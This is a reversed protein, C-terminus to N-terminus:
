SSSPVAQTGPVMGPPNQAPLKLSGTRRVLKHIHAVLVTSPAPKTLYDDAGLDLARAVLAPDNLASLIIIPVNSFARVARCTEWGDMGPMMLDLLLLDPNQDRLLQVGEEARNVASVDFGTTKLLLTLLETVAPDDDIVLVHTPM